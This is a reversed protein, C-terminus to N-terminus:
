RPRLLMTALVIAVVLCVLGVATMFIAGARDQGPLRATTPADPAYLVELTGGVPPEPHRSSTQAEFVVGEGAATVFRVVPQHYVNNKYTRVEHRLVTAHTRVARTEWARLRRWSGLGLHLVFFLGVALLLTITLLLGLQDTTM